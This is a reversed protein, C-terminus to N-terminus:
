MQRPDSKWEAIQNGVSATNAVTGTKDSVFWASECGEVYKDAGKKM